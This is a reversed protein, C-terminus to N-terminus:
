DRRLFISATAKPGCWRMSGPGDDDVSVRVRGDVAIARVRISAKM